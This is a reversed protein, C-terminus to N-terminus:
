LIGSDPLFTALPKLSRRTPISIASSPVPRLAENELVDFGVESGEASGNAASEQILWLGMINKLFRVSHHYGIENTFNAAVAKESM